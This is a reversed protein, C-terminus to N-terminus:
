SPSSKRRTPSTIAWPSIRVEVPTNLVVTNWGAVISSVPVTQEAMINEGYMVFVSASLIDNTALKFKIRSVKQGVKDAM